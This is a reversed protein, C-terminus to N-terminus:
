YHNSLIRGGAAHLNSMIFEEIMELLVEWDTVMIEPGMGLRKLQITVLM